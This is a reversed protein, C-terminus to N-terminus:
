YGSDWEAIRLHFHAFDASNIQLATEITTLAQELEAVYKSYDALRSAAHEDTDRKSSEICGVNFAITELLQPKFQEHIQRALELSIDVDEDTYSGTENTQIWKHPVLERVKAISWWSPELRFLVEGNHKGVGSFELTYAM